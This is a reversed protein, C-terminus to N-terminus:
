YAYKPRKAIYERNEAVFREGYQEFLPYQRLLAAWRAPEYVGDRKFYNVYFVGIWFDAVTM